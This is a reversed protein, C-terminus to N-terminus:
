INSGKECRDQNKAEAMFKRASQLAEVAGGMGRGGRPTKGNLELARLRRQQRGTSRLDAVARLM